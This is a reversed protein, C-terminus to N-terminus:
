KKADKNLFSNIIKNIQDPKGRILLADVIEDLGGTADNSPKKESIIANFAESMSSPKQM